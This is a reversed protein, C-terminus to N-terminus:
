IRELSRWETATLAAIARFPRGHRSSEVFVRGINGSAQFPAACHFGRRLRVFLASSPMTRCKSTGTTSTVRSRWGAPPRMASPAPSAARAASKQSQRRSCPACNMLSLSRASAAAREGPSRGRVDTEIAFVRAIMELAQAAAPSKTEVHVDYIKRRAHDRQRLLDRPRIRLSDIHAGGRRHISRPRLCLQWSSRLCSSQCWITTSTHYRFNIIM